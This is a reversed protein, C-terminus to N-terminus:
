ATEKANKRPRGPSTTAPPRHSNVRVRTRTAAGDPRKPPCTTGRIVLHTPIEESTPPAAGSLAALLQRAALAGQEHVPQAVTTLDFLAAMEHDDFGVVSVDEPCRLGVKRIARLAGMAMEDSQAFVATPLNPCALLSAMAREGGDVTYDGDVDYDRDVGIGAETLATAYGTRRDEPTTFHTPESRGGAIM